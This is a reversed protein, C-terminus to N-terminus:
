SDQCGDRTKPCGSGSCGGCKGANRIQRVIAFGALVVVLGVIAIIILKDAM